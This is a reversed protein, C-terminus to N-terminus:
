FGSGLQGLDASENCQARGTWIPWIHWLCSVPAIGTFRGSQVDGHFAESGYRVHATGHSYASCALDAGGTLAQKTKDVLCPRPTQQSLVCLLQASGLGQANYTGIPGRRVMPDVKVTSGNM